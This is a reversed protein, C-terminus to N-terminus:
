DFAHRINVCTIVNLEELGRKPRTVTMHNAKEPSSATETVIGGHKPLQQPSPKNLRVGKWAFCWVRRPYLISVFLFVPCLVSVSVSVGVGSIIQSFLM